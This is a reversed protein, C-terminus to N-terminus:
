QQKGRWMTLAAAILAQGTDKSDHRTSLLAGTMLVFIAQIHDPIEGIAKIFGGMRAPAEAIVKGVAAADEKMTQVNM